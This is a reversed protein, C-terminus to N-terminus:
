LISMSIQVDNWQEVASELTGSSAMKDCANNSCYIGWNSTPAFESPGFVKSKGGCRCNLPNHARANGM